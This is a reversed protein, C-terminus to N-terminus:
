DRETKHSGPNVKGHGDQVQDKQHVQELPQPRHDTEMGRISKSGCVDSQLVRPISTPSTRSGGEFHAGPDRSRSGNGEGLQQCVFLIDSSDELTTTSVGIPDLLGGQDSLCCLPRCQNGAVTALSTSPM